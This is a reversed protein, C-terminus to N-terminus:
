LWHLVSAIIVMQAGWAVTFSLTRGLPVGLTYVSYHVLRAGFYVVVAMQTLPTSIHLLHAVLVAPVFIALNEVANEHARMARQAWASHPLNVEAQMGSIAPWLGRVAVRDLFYPVWFLATMFVTITMWFLESTM